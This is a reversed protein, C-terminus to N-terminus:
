SAGGSAPEQRGNRTARLTALRESGAVIASLAGQELRLGEELSVEGGRLVVNLIAQTLQPDQRAIRKALRQAEHLAEGTPVLVDILGIRAAEDSKITAGTLLYRLACGTTVLRPLRQTGGGAPIMGLIIEPQAFRASASGIRIHCALVLELAGGYCPGEIAAIVPKPFSAIRRNVAAGERLWRRLSPEDTPLERLDLGTGFVEPLGTLIVVREEPDAEITGLLRHLGPLAELGFLNSPPNAYRVVATRDRREHEWPDNM